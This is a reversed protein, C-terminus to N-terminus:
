RKKAVTKAKAKKAVTKAKKVVAKAKAKKALEKEKAREANENARFKALREILKVPVPRSLPFRITGKSLEYPALEDKFAEVLAETAPYLSYHETWGAFFLVPGGHLKYAPIQYSIVEAADPVAKRIVGRVRELVARVAEPKTGIYEDVSKFDTNAMARTNAHRGIPDLM